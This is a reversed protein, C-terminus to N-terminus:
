PEIQMDVVGCTLPLNCTGLEVLECTVRVRKGIYNEYQVHYQEPMILEIGRANRVSGFSTPQELELVSLPQQFRPDSVCQTRTPTGFLVANPSSGVLYPEPSCSCLLVVAIALLKRM